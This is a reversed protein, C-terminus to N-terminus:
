NCWQKVAERAKAEAKRAPFEKANALKMAADLSADYDGVDYAMIVPTQHPFTRVFNKRRFEVPDLEIAAKKGPDTNVLVLVKDAKPGDPDDCWRVTLWAVIALIATLVIRSFEPGPDGRPERRWSAAALLLAAVARAAGRGVGSRTAKENSWRMRSATAM